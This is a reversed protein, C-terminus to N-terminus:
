SCRVTVGSWWRPYSQVYFHYPAEVCGTVVVRLDDISSKLFRGVVIRGSAAVASHIQGFRDLGAQVLKTAAGHMPSTESVPSRRSRHASDELEDILGPAPDGVVLDHDRRALFRALDPGVYFNTNAVLAIRRESSM